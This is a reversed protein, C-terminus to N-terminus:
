RASADPNALLNVAGQYKDSLLMINMDSPLYGSINQYAKEMSKAVEMKVYNESGASSYALMKQRIAEAEANGVAVIAKARLEGAEKEAEANLVTRKKSAEASLVQQEAEKEASLIGVQKDRDAEVVMREYNAKAEAKAKEAAAEAAKTQEINKLRAQIAVQRETIEKVYTPDLGIHQIVFNDVIVGRKALEGKPDRLAALIDNQLTVLGAGSYAELATRVTAKDKVIRQLEPRLVREEINDRVTKHLEVIKLPDRRWQIALSIRMDQQDSSQVLYSDKDRGEAYDNPDDNMVYVEQSIKYPYMKQTFAPFLIYTKPGFVEDLVGESWTEKVAVEDGAITKFGVLMSLGALLVVVIFTILSLSAWTKTDMSKKRQKKKIKDIDM